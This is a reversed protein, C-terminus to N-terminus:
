DKWNSLSPTDSVYNIRSSLIKKYNSFFFFFKWHCEIKYEIIIWTNFFCKEIIFKMKLESTAFLFGSWFVLTLEQSFDKWCKLWLKIDFAFGIGKVSYYYWILRCRMRWWKLAQTYIEKLVEVSLNNNLNLKCFM